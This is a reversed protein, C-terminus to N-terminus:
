GYTGKVKNQLCKQIFNKYQLNLNNKNTTYTAIKKYESNFLINQPLNRNSISNNKKNPHKINEIFFRYNDNYPYGIEDCIFKVVNEPNKILYDFLILINNKSYFFNKYFKSLILSMWMALDEANKTKNKINEDNYNLWSEIADIPDRIIVFNFIDPNNINLFSFNHMSFIVDIYMDDPFYDQLLFFLFMNGSRPPSTILLIKKHEHNLPEM